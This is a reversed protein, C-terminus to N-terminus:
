KSAYSLYANLVDGSGGGTTTFTCELEPLGTTDVRWAWCKPSTIASPNKTWTAASSTCTGSANACGQLTYDTTGSDWSGTCTMNFATISNDADTVCIWLVALSPTGNTEPLTVAQSFTPSNSNLSAAAVVKKVLKYYPVPGVAAYAASVFAMIAVVALLTKKM